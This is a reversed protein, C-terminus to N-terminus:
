NEFIYPPGVDALLTGSTSLSPGNSSSAGMPFRAHSSLVYQPPDGVQVPEGREAEEFYDKIERFVEDNSQAEENSCLALPPNVSM